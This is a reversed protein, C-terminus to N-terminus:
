MMDIWEVAGFRHAASRSRFESDVNGTYFECFDLRSCQSHEFALPKRDIRDQFSDASIPRPYWNMYDTSGLTICYLHQM